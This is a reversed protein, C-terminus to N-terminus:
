GDDGYYDQYYYYYYYYSGSTPRVQNACVGIMQVGIERLTQVTQRAATRRAQKGVVFLTRDTGHSIVTADALFGAPPTDWIVYDAMGRLREIVEHGHTSGLLDVPSPPLPGATIVTLNGIETEQMVQDPEMDGVLVNSLGPEREADFLTHVRPRHLDADILLVREGANALAAALNAAVLTKGESRGASTVTLSVLDDRSMEIRVTSALMRVANAFATRTAGNPGGVQIEIQQDEQIEPLVGVLRADLADRVEDPDAFTDDVQDVVVAMLAALLLAGIVGIGIISQYQPSVPDRPADAERVLQVPSVATARTLQLEYLRALLSSHVSQLGDVKRRLERYAISGAPAMEALVRQESLQTQLAAQRARIADLQGYLGILADQANMYVPNPETTVATRTMQDSDDELQRDLRAIQDRLSQVEPSDEYYDQLKRQLEVNLQSLQQEIARARFSPQEQVEEIERPEDELRQRTRDIQAQLADMEVRNQAIHDILSTVRSNGNAGGINIGSELYKQELEAMQEEMDRLDDEVGEIQTQVYQLASVTSLTSRDRADQEYIAAWTNCVEMAERPQRSRYTLAILNASAGPVKGVNVAGVIAHLPEELDLTAKVQEAMEARRILRVHMSIDGQLSSWVDAETLLVDGGGKRGGGSVLMWASAEYLRPQVLAYLVAVLIVALAVPVMIWLRRRFITLLNRSATQPAADDIPRIRDEM